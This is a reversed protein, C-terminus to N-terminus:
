INNINFNPSLPRTNTSYNNYPSSYISNVTCLERQQQPAQGELEWVVPEIHSKTLNSKIIPSSIPLIITTKTTTIPTPTSHSQDPIPRYTPISQFPAVNLSEETERKRMENMHVQM